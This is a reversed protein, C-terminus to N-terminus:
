GWAFQMVPDVAYVHMCLSKVDLDVSFAHKTEFSVVSKYDTKKWATLLNSATMLRCSHV